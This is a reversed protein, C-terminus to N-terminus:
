RLWWYPVGTVTIAAAVLAASTLVLALTIGEVGLIPAIAAYPSDIQSYGMWLWPFGTMLWGRIWDLILWFVPGSLM